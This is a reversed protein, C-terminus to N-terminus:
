FFFDFTILNKKLEICFRVWTFISFFSFVITARISNVGVGDKPREASSWSSTLYFFEILYLFAWFGSFSFNKLQCMSVNSWRVTWSTYIHVYIYKIILILVWWLDGLVYHKRTKVSSMQEFLYEGALFGISALFAVVGVVNGYSCPSSSDKNFLCVEKGNEDRYGKSSICGFVILAFLQFFFTLFNTDDVVSSAYSPLKNM